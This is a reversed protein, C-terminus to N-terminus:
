RPGDALGSPVLPPGPAPACGSSGAQPRPRPERPPGLAPLKATLPPLAGRGWHPSGVPLTASHTLSGAGPQAGGQQRGPVAQAQVRGPPQTAILPASDARRPMRRGSTPRAPPLVARRLPPPMHGSFLEAAERAARERARLRRGEDDCEWQLQQRATHEERAARRCQLMQEREALEREDASEPPVERRRLEPLGRPASPPRQQRPATRRPAGLGWARASLVLEARSAAEAEGLSQRASREQSGLLRLAAAGLRPPPPPAAAGLVARQRQSQETLSLAHRIRAEAGVVREVSDQLPSRLSQPPPSVAAPPGAAPSAAPTLLPPEDARLATQEAAAAARLAVRTRHERHELRGRDAAEARANESAFPAIAIEQRARRGREAAQIRTAAEREKASSFDARQARELEARARVEAFAAFHREDDEQSLLLSEPSANPDLPGGPRAAPSSSAGPSRAARPPSARPARPRRAAPRAAALAGRAAAGRGWRQLALTCLEEDSGAAPAGAGAARSPGPPPPPTPSPQLRRRHPGQPPSAERPLPPLLRALLVEDAAADAAAAAAAAIVQVARHARMRRQLATECRWLMGRGARRLTSAAARIRCEGAAAAACASAVAAALLASQRRIRRVRLRAAGGAWARTQITLVDALARRGDARTPLRLAARLLAAERQVAAAKVTAVTGCLAAVAPPLLDRVAAGQEAASVVASAGLAALASSGLHLERQTHVSLAGAAACAGIRACRRRWATERREKCEVADDAARFAAAAALVSVCLGAWAATLSRAAHRGAAAGGVVAAATGLLLSRARREKAVEVARTAAAAATTAGVVANCLLVARRRDLLLQRAATRAAAAAGCAAVCRAATDTAVRLWEQVVSEAAAPSVAAAALVGTALAAQLAAAEQRERKRLAVLGQVAAWGQRRSSTTTRELLAAARRHRQRTRWLRQLCVYRARAHRDLAQRRLRETEDSIKAQKKREAVKRKCSRMLRRWGLRRHARISRELLDAAVREAHERYARRRERLLLVAEPGACAALAAAAHVGRWLTYMYQRDRMGAALARLERGALIRDQASFYLERRSLLGQGVRQMLLICRAVWRCQDRWGKLCDFREQMHNVQVGRLLRLACLLREEREKRQVAAMPAWEAWAEYRMRQSYRDIRVLCERAKQRNERRKERQESAMKPLACIRDYTFRLTKIRIIHALNRARRIGDGLRLAREMCWEDALRAREIHGRCLPQLFLAAAAVRACRLAAARRRWLMGQALRCLLRKSAVIIQRGSLLRRAEYVRWARQLCETAGLEVRMTELWLRSGFGRAARQILRLSSVLHRQLATHVRARYTRYLRQVRMAHEHRRWDGFGARLIYGKGWRQLRLLKHHSAATILRGRMARGAAQTIRICRRQHNMLQHAALAARMRLVFRGARMADALIRWALVKRRAGAHRRAFSARGTYQLCRIARVRRRQAAARGAHGRACRGLLLAAARARAGERWRYMWKRTALARGAAQLRVVRIWLARREARRVHAIMTRVWRQVICASRLRRREYLLLAGANRGLLGQGIRQLFVLQAKAGRVAIRAKRGRGLDQLLRAAALRRYLTIALRRNHLGRGARAITLQAGRRRELQLRKRRAILARWQAQLKIAAFKRARKESLQSRAHASRWGRQMMEAAGKQLRKEAANSRAHKCRWARQLRMAGRTARTDQATQIRNLCARGTRQLRCAVSLLRTDLRSDFARFTAQLRRLARNRRVEKAFLQKARYVRFARQCVEAAATRRVHQLRWFRDNCGRGCRQLWFMAWKRHLLNERWLQGRGFRQLARVRRRCEMFAKRHLHTRWHAQLMVCAALRASRNAAALTRFQLKDRASRWNRQIRRAARWLEVLEAFHKRSLYRRVLSQCQLVYEYDLPDGFLQLERTTAFDSLPRATATRREALDRTGAIFWMVGMLQQVRSAVYHRQTCEEDRIAMRRLQEDRQGSVLFAIGKGIPESPATLCGLRTLEFRLEDDVGFYEFAEIVEGAAYRGLHDTGVDALSLFDHTLARLGSGDPQQRLQVSVDWLTMRSRAMPDRPLAVGYGRAAWLLDKRDMSQRPPADQLKCVSSILAVVLFESRRMLDVVDDTHLYSLLYGVARRRQPSAAASAGGDALAGHSRLQGKRWRRGAFAAALAVSPLAGAAAHEQRAEAKVQEDRQQAAQTPSAGQAVLNRRHVLERRSLKCRYVRQVVAAAHNTRIVHHHFARCGDPADFAAVEERVIAWRGNREEEGCHATLVLEDVVREMQFRMLLTALDERTAQLGKVLKVGALKFMDTVLKPLDGTELFARALVVLRISARRQPNRLSEDLARAYVAPLEISYSSRFAHVQPAPVEHNADTARVLAKLAELTVSLSLKLMEAVVYVNTLGTEEDFLKELSTLAGDIGTLRLSTEPSRMDGKRARRPVTPASRAIAPTLSGKPGAGASHSTIDQGRGRPRDPSVSRRVGQPAQSQRPQVTRSQRPDQHRVRATPGPSAVEGGVSGRSSGTSGSSVSNASRGRSGRGSRSRSTDGGGGQQRQLARGRAGQRSGRSDATGARPEQGRQPSVGPSLTPGLPTRPPTPQEVQSVRSSHSSASSGPSMPPASPRPGGPPQPRAGRGAPQPRAAGRGAQPRPGQLPTTPAPPM